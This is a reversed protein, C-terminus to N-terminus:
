TSAVIFVNLICHGREESFHILWHQHINSMLKPPIIVFSNVVSFNALGTGHPAISLGQDSHLAVAVSDQFKTSDDAAFLM